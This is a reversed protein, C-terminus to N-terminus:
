FHIIYLINAAYRPAFYTLDYDCYEMVLLHGLSPHHWDAEFRVIHKHVLSKLMAVEHKPNGKGM